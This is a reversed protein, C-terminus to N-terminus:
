VCRSTYLLCVLAHADAGKPLVPRYPALIGAKVARGAFANDIGFVVDGLPSNKTLVLKNTLEGADGSKVLTVKCGTAATFAALLEDSLAFSDHTLLTVATNSTCRYAQRKYVDLHTYSVPGLVALVRGPQLAVSVDDVATTPVFRVTVSRVDLGAPPESSGPLQAGQSAAGAM